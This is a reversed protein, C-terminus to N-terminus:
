SGSQLPMIEITADELNCYKDYMLAAVTRAYSEFADPVSEKFTGLVYLFDEIDQPILKSM